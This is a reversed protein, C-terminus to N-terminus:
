CEGENGEERGEDGAMGSYLSGFGEVGGGLVRAAIGVVGREGGGAGVERTFVEVCLGPDVLGRGFGPPSTGDGQKLIDEQTTM